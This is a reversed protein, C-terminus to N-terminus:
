RAAAAGNRRQARLANDLRAKIVPQGPQLRLAKRYCVIASDFDGVSEHATGLDMQGLVFDPRREVAARYCAIAEKIDGRQRVVAGLAHWAGWNRPDIEVCRRISQEALAPNKAQFAITGLEFLAAPNDPESQLLERCQEEAEAFLGIKRLDKARALIAASGKANEAPNAPRLEGNREAREFAGMFDHGPVVWLARMNDLCFDQFWGRSLDRVTKMLGRAYVAQKPLGRDRLYFREIGIVIFEEQALRCRDLYPLADFLNKSLDAKSLDTKCREYAPKGQDFAIAKHLDDHVYTRIHNSIEFFDENSVKTVKTLLRLMDVFHKDWLNPFNLHSRKTLYLANVSALSAVSDLVPVRDETALALLLRDSETEAVHFEIKQFPLGPKLHLHFTERDQLKEQSVILRANVRKFEAFEGADGVVDADNPRRGLDIGRRQAALSGILIM